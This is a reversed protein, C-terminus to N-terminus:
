DRSPEGSPLYHSSVTGRWVTASRGPNKQLAVWGTPTIDHKLDLGIEKLLDLLRFCFERAEDYSAFPQDLGPPLPIARNDLELGLRYEATGLDLTLQEM